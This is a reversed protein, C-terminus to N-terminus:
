HGTHRIYREAMTLRTKLDGPLQIVPTNGALDYIIEQIMVDVEERLDSYEDLFSNLADIDQIPLYFLADLNEISMSVKEFYMEKDIENDIDSVLAYALLDVPSRDFLVDDSQEEEILELSKELMTQYDDLSPPDPIEYGEELLLYYPEEHLIYNPFSESLMEIITSKGSNHSGTVAIRMFVRWKMM